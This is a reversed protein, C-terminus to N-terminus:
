TPCAKKGGETSSANPDETTILKDGQRDVGSYQAYIIMKNEPTKTFAQIGFEDPKPDYIKFNRAWGVAVFAIAIALVIVASFIQKPKRVIM